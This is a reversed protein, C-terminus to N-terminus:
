SEPKRLTILNKQPFSFKTKLVKGKDQSFLTGGIKNLFILLVHQM